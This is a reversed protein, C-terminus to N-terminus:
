KQSSQQKSLRQSKNWTIMEETKSKFPGMLSGCGTCEVYNKGGYAAYGAYDGCRVCKDLVGFLEPKIGRM